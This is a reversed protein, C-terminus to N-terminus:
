GPEENFCRGSCCRNERYKPLCGFTTDLNCCEVLKSPLDGFLERLVPASGCAFNWVGSAPARRGVHGERHHADEDVFARHNCNPVECCNDARLKAIAVVLAGREYTRISMSKTSPRAGPKASEQTSLWSRALDTPPWDKLSPSWLRM